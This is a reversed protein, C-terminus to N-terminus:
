GGVRLQNDVSVVGSVARALTVARDKAADTPATGKLVVAGAHTDVDIKLASLQPDRALEATIKTTISADQTGAKITDVAEATGAKAAEMGQKMDQGVAESKKEVTSIAADLKEGATTPQDSKGCAGLLLASAVALVPLGLRSTVAFKKM